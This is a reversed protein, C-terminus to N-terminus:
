NSWQLWATVPKIEESVFQYNHGGSNRDIVFEAKHAALKKSWQDAQGNILENSDNEAEGLFWRIGSSRSLFNDPNQYALKVINKPPTGFTNTDDDVVFYGALTIVQSFLEPHHLGIMVAGYGGMSYGLIARNNRSRINGAEVKKIVYKTLWTEVMAKKDFSDAWESDEHTIANGNPFVAIFPKAGNKFASDLSNITASMLGSPYGPWGHLLYVIPLKNKNPVDPTWVFVHRIPYDKEPSNIYIEKTTGPRVEAIVPIPNLLISIVAAILLRNRNIKM